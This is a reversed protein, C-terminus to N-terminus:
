NYNLPPNDKFASADLKIKELESVISDLEKKIKLNTQVLILTNNGGKRIANSYDSEIAVELKKCCNIINCDAEKSLIRNLIAMYEAMKLFNSSRTHNDSLTTKLTLLMPIFSNLFYYARSDLINEPLQIDLISWIYRNKNNRLENEFCQTLPTMKELMKKLRSNHNTNDNIKNKNGKSDKSEILKKIRLTKLWKSLKKGYLNQESSHVNEFPIIKERHEESKGISQPYSGWHTQFLWINLDSPLNDIDSDEFLVMLVVLGDEEKRRKILIPLEKTRTYIDDYTILRPGLLLIAIDCTEAWKLCNDDILGETAQQDNLINAKFHEKFVTMLENFLQKNTSSYPFFVKPISSM